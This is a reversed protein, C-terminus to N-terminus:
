SHTLVLKQAQHRQLLTAVLQQADQGAHQQSVQQWHCTLQWNKNLATLQHSLWRQLQKGQNASTRALVIVFKDGGYRCVIDTPRVNLALSEAIQILIQDAEPVGLKQNIGDFNAIDLLMLTLPFQGLQQEREVVHHLYSQTYLATLPDIFQHERLFKERGQLQRNVQRQERYWGIVGLTLIFMGVPLPISELWSMLRFSDPYSFFEDLLDLTHSFVLLQSGSYLYATVQGAPRAALILWLWICVM